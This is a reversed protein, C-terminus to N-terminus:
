RQHDFLSHLKELLQPKSYVGLKNKINQLYEEVTRQSINLNFAVQKAPQGRMTFKICELERKTFNLNIFDPILITNHYIREADSVGWQPLIARDAMSQKILHKAHEKFYLIFSDLYDLNNIYFNIININNRNTAFHFLECEDGIRKILVIGHAIDFQERAITIITQDKPNSWLEYGSQYKRPDQHFVTHDYYYLYCHRAWEPHSCLIQHTGDNFLRLYCFHNINVPQLSKCITKVDMGTSIMHTINLKEESIIAAM